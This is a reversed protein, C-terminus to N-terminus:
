HAQDNHKGELRKKALSLEELTERLSQRMARWNDAAYCAVTSVGASLISTWLALAGWAMGNELLYVTVPLSIGLVGVTYAVIRPFGWERGPDPGPFFHKAIYHTAVMALASIAAISALATIQM